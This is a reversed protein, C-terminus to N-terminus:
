ASLVVRCASKIAKAGDSQQADCEEPLPENTRGRHDVLVGRVVILGIVSKGRLLHLGPPEREPIRVARQSDGVVCPELSREEIREAPRKEEDVIDM